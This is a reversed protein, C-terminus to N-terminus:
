IEHKVSSESTDPDFFRFVFVRGSSVLVPIAFCSGWRERDSSASYRMSNLHLHHPASHVPSQSYQQLHAPPPIRDGM